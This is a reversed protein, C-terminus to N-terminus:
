YYMVINGSLYDFNCKLQYIQVQHPELATLHIKLLMICGAEGFDVKSV